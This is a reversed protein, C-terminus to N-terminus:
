RVSRWATVGSASSPRTVAVMIQRVTAVAGSPPRAPPQIPLWAPSRAVISALVPDKQVKMITAIPNKGVFPPIGTLVEYLVAGLSWVDSQEDVEAQRGFAQEPSM